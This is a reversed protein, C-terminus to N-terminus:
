GCPGEGGELVWETRLGQSDRRVRVSSARWGTFDGLGPVTLDVQEQRAPWVEGPTTVRLRRGALRSQALLARPDKGATRALYRRRRIGPEGPFVTDYTGRASQLVVDGLRKCPLLEWRASQIANLQRHGTEEAPVCQLRGDVDVFPTVGLVTACFRAIVAWCSEGKTVALRAARATRDGAGLSLGLPLLYREELTELTVGSLTGPCAENDLLLAERSRCVLEVTLGSPSLVATQEDVLGRFVPVDERTVTVEQLEEWVKDAPFVARLEDAPADADRIFLAQEPDGLLYRRGSCTTGWFIM